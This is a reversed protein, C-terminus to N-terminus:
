EPQLVALALQAAAQEAEKKSPGKGSSIYKGDLFLTVEFVRAHEPGESGALRYEPVQNSMQQTLEQLRTKFDKLLDDLSSNDILENMISSIVNMAAEFGGDLYISAILAEMADALISNKNRGGTTEEGRGLLLAQGIGISRAIEALRIENVLGARMKSMVGEKMEPFRQYLITGVCLGLVADGLFELRQNDEMVRGNQGHDKHQDVFSRHKLATVMLDRDKFNYGISAELYELPASM